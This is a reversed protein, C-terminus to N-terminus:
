CPSRSRMADVLSDLRSTSSIWNLASSPGHMSLKWPPIATATGSMLATAAWQGRNASAAASAPNVETYATGSRSRRVVM